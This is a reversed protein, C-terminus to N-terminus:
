REEGLEAIAFPGRTGWKARTETFVTEEVADAKNSWSSRIYTAIAALQKDNLTQGLPAMAGTYQKGLVNIPGVLGYIMIAALREVNDGTVYPSGDLPPFAAPIGQGTAQHCAGCNATYLAAGDIIEEQEAKPLVGVIHSLGPAASVRPGVTYEPSGLRPGASGGVERSQRECSLVFLVVLLLCFLATGKRM